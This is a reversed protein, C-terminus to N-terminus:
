QRRWIVIEGIGDLVGSADAASFRAPLRSLPKGPWGTLVVIRDFKGMNELMEGTASSSLLVVAPIPRGIYQTILLLQRKPWYNPAEVGDLILLDRDTLHHDLVEAATRAYPNERTPYRVTVVMALLVVILGIARSRGELWYTGAVISAAIPPILLHTFRIHNLIQRGTTLELGVLVLLPILLWLGVLLRNHRRTRLVAGIVIAWVALGSVAAAIGREDGPFRILLRIPLSLVDQITAASSQAALNIKPEPSRTVFQWQGLLVPGWLLLYLASVVIVAACWRVLVSGRFRVVVYVAQAILPLLMLYHSLMAGLLSVGYAAHVWRQAKGAGSGSRAELRALAWFSLCLFLLALTYQRNNQAMMLDIRSLGIIAATWVGFWLGLRESFLKFCVYLTILSLMVPLLRIAAESDGVWDRWYHLMIFYLPPHTEYQMARWVDTFGLDASATTVRGVDHLIEGYPIREVEGQRASANVLSYVEDLWFDEGGLNYLRLLTAVVLVVLFARWARRTHTGASPQTDQTAEPM